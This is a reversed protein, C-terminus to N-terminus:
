GGKLIGSNSERYQQSMRRFYKSTDACSLGSISLTTDEAKVLFCQRATKNVSQGNKQYYYELEDDSFFPCDKERLILKLEDLYSFAM